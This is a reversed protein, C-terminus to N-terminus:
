LLSNEKESNILPTPPPSPTPFNNTTLLQILLCGNPCSILYGNVSPVSYASLVGVFMGTFCISRDNQHHCRLLMSQKLKLLPHSDWKGGFNSCMDTATM